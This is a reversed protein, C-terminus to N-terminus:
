GAFVTESRIMRVTSGLILEIRGARVAKELKVQLRDKIRLFKEGRYSLTVTTGEQNALGLASEIATDGGGVVLVQRGAFDEMEVIDYFVKDLEEGAVGLRRPTGRRGM